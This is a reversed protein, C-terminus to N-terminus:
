SMLVIILIFLRSRNKNLCKSRYYVDSEYFGFIDLKGICFYNDGRLNNGTHTFRISKFPGTTLTPFTKVHVNQNLGSNSIQAIKQENNLIGVGEWAKPYAGNSTWDYVEFTYNTIFIPKIFDITFYSSAIPNSCWWSNTSYNFLNGIYRTSDAQTSSGKLSSVLKGNRRILGNKDINSKPLKVVM